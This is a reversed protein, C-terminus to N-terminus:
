VQDLGFDPNSINTKYNISIQEVPNRAAHFLKFLDGHVSDFPFCNHAWLPQWNEMCKPIHKLQYVDLGCFSGGAYNSLTLRRGM